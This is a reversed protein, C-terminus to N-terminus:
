IFLLLFCGYLFTYYKVMLLRKHLMTTSFLQDAVFHYTCVLRANLKM